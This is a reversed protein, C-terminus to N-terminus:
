LYYASVLYLVGDYLRSTMYSGSQSFSTIENPEAPDSIDYFTATSETSYYESGQLYRDEVIILTSGSVYMEHSSSGAAASNSLLQTRSVVSTDAGAPKFIVLADSSLAYIYSGDTKVIDGEDIGEVQVNTESYSGASATPTEANQPSVDEAAAGDQATEPTNLTTEEAMGESSEGADTPAALAPSEALEVIGSGGLLALDGNQGMEQAHELLRYLEQYDTPAPVEGVDAVAVRTDSIQFPTGNGFPSPESLFLGAAIAVCIFAAASLAVIAPLRLGSTKKNKNAKEAKGPKAKDSSFAPAASTAQVPEPEVTKPEEPNSGEFNSEELAAELRETMEASPTMQERMDKFINNNM